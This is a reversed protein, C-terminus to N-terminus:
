DNRFGRTIDLVSITSQAARAADDRATDRLVSLRDIEAQAEDAVGNYEMEADSLRRAIDDFVAVASGHLASAANYRQDLTEPAAAKRAFLRM